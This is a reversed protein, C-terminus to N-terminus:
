IFNRKRTQPYAKLVHASNIRRAIWEEMLLRELYAPDGRLDTSPTKLVVQESTREDVALYAHSRSSAHLERIIKYGDFVMRPTLEPPCPLESLQQHIENADQSPLGDIRVIQVTLNDASGQNFAEDAISKAVADLHNAGAV